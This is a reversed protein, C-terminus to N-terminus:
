DFSSPVTWSLKSGEQFKLLNEDPRHPTRLPLGGEIEKRNRIESKACGLLSKEIGTFFIFLPPPSSNPSAKISSGLVQTGWGSNGSCKSRPQFQQSFVRPLFSFIPNSIPPRAQHPTFCIKDNWFIVTILPFGWFFWNFWYVHNCVPGGGNPSGWFQVLGM